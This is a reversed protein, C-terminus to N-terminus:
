ESLTPDARQKSEVSFPGNGICGALPFCGSRRSSANKRNEQQKALKFEQQNGGVYPDLNTATQMMSVGDNPRAHTWTTVEPRGEFVVFAIEPFKQERVPSISNPYSTLGHAPCM